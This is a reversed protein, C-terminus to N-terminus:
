EQRLRSRPAVTLRGLSQRKVVLDEGPRDRFQVQRRKKEREREFVAGNSGLWLKLVFAIAFLILPM